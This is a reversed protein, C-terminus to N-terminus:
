CLLFSWLFAVSQRSSISAILTKFNYCVSFKLDNSVFLFIFNLTWRYFTLHFPDLWSSVSFLLGMQWWRCWHLLCCWRLVFPVASNARPLRSVWCFEHWVPLDWVETWSKSSDSLLFVSFWYDSVFFIWYLLGLKHWRSLQQQIDQKANYKVKSVSTVVESDLEFIFKKNFGSFSEM